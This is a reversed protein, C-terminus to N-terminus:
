IDEASMLVSIRQPSSNHRFATLFLKENLAYHSIIGQNIRNPPLGMALCLKKHIVMWEFDKWDVAARNASIFKWWLPGTM